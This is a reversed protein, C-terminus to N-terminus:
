ARFGIDAGMRGPLMRGLTADRAVVHHWLAAGAHAVILAAMTWGLLEHVEKASRALTRDRGLLRPLDFGFLSPDHGRAAALVYGALPVAIMLAYLALHGARALWQQWAPGLGAPVRNALMWALRVLVVALTALGLSEHLSVVVGRGSSERPFADVLEATAFQLAILLFITWHLVQALAGYRAETNRWHIM